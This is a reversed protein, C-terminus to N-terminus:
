VKVKNHFYISIKVRICKGVELVIEREGQTLLNTQVHIELSGLSM